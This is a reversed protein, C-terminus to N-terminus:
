WEWDVLRTEPDRQLWRDWVVALGMCGWFLQMPLTQHLAANILANLLVIVYIGILGVVLARDLTHRTARYVRILTWGTLLLLASWALLLGIGYEYAIIGISSHGQVFVWTGRILVWNDAPNTSAHLTTTAGVGFWPSRAFVEFAYRLFWLRDQWINDLTLASVTRQWLELLRQVGPTYSALLVVGFWVIGPLLVILVARRRRRNPGLAAVLIAALMLNLLAARLTTLVLAVAVVLALLALLLRERRRPALVMLALVPPMLFSLTLPVNAGRFGWLWYLWDRGPGHTQRVVEGSEGGYFLTIPWLALARLLLPLFICLLLIRARRPSDILLVTLFFPLLTLGFIYLRWGAERGYGSLAGAALIMACLLLLGDLRTGPWATRRTAWYAIAAGAATFGVVAFPSDLIPVPVQVWYPVLQGVPFLLYLGIVPNRLILPVLLLFPLFLVMTPATFVARGIYAAAVVALLTMSPTLWREPNARRAASSRGAPWITNTFHELM